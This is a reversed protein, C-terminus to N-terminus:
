RGAVSAVLVPDLSAPQVASVQGDSPGKAPGSLEPHLLLMAEADTLPPKSSALWRQAKKVRVRSKSWGAICKGAGYVGLRDEVPLGRCARFSNRAMHLGTRFCGTRSQVLHEGGLSQDWLADNKGILKFSDQTLHVRKPSRGLGDKGLLVQMMCWSKGNDGRGLSGLGFDVDKRYGSEFWSMSAILALTKARGYKGGFLPKEAPDYVVSIMSDAIEAYRDSGEEKTEKAAPIYSRGPPMWSLMRDLLWQHLSTVAVSPIKSAAREHRLSAVTVPPSESAARDQPQNAFSDHGHVSLCVTVSAILLLRIFMRTM